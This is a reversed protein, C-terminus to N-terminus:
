TSTQGYESHVLAALLANFPHAYLLIIVISVCDMFLINLAFFFFFFLLLHLLLFAGGNIKANETCLEVSGCGGALVMPPLEDGTVYWVVVRSFLRRIGATRCIIQMPIAIFRFPVPDRHHLQHSEPFFLTSCPSPPHYSLKVCQWGAFPEPDVNPHTVCHFSSM